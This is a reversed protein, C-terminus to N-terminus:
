NQDFTGCLAKIGLACNCSSKGANLSLEYVTNRLSSWEDFSLNDFNNRKARIYLKAQEKLQLNDPASESKIYYKNRIELIDASNQHRRLWQWGATQEKLYILQIPEKYLNDDNKQSMQKVITCANEFFPGMKQKPRLIKTKKLDNNTGELGNNHDLDGAGAFWNSENSTIWTNEVYNVFEQCNEEEEWKIKFKNFSEIFEERDQSLQIQKIDTNLDKAYRKPMRKNIAGHTYPFCMLRSFDPNTEIQPWVEAKAATIATSGDAMFQELQPYEISECFQTLTETDENSMM